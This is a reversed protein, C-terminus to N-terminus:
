KGVTPLAVFGHQFVEAPKALAALGDLDFDKYLDLCFLDSAEAYEVPKDMLYGLSHMGGDLEVQSFLSPELAATVLAVVQSRIGSGELRIQSPTFAERAWRALGALQAAEMGLPREGVAALMEAFHHMPQDPAPDGMGLLDVVLVQEGQEMRHAVEPVRDWVQTAAGKKGHDNIVITLPPHNGIQVEKLLVGTASLGNSLAFIYSMSEVEDHHTNAVRSIHSVTVPHYRVVDRLKARQSGSWAM